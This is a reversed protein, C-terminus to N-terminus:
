GTTMILRETTVLKVCKSYLEPKATVDFDPDGNGRYLYYKLFTDKPHCFLAHVLAHINHQRTM